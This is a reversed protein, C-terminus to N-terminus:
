NEIMAPIEMGGWEVVTFGDRILPQILQKELQIGKDISKWLIYIRYFSKPEPTIEFEAFERCDDNFKFHVQNLKNQALKPGWFTIFDAQEKSSLGAEDLIGELFAVVNDGEVIYGDPEELIQPHIQQTSEWFLYNYTKDGFKLDGNPHATFKWSDDYSPYYFPNKGKINIAVAVETPAEPYLYIVPKEPTVEMYVRRFFLTMYTHQQGPVALPDTTIEYYKSNIFFQFQHLGATTEITFLGDQNIQEDSEVGNNSYRFGQLGLLDVNMIQVTFNAQLASLSTDVKASDIWYERVQAFYSTSSAFTMSSSILLLSLFIIKQM